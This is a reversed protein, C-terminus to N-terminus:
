EDEMVLKFAEDIWKTDPKSTKSSAPPIIASDPQDKLRAPFTSSKFDIPEAFKVVEKCDDNQCQFGILVHAKKVSRVAKVTTGGCHNCRLLFDFAPNVTREMLRVAALFPIALEGPMTWVRLKPKAQKKTM